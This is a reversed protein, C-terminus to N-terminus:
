FSIIYKEHIYVNANQMYQPGTNERLFISLLKGKNMTFRSNSAFSDSYRAGFAEHKIKENKGTWWV